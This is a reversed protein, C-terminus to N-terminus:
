AFVSPREREAASHIALNGEKDQVEAAGSDVELLMGVVESLNLEAHECISHLPTNGDKDIVRTCEPYASLLIQIM